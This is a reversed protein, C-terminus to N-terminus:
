RKYYELKFENEPTEPNPDRKKWFNVIFKGRDLETPLNIFLNKEADTIIFVVVEELWQKSWMSLPDKNKKESRSTEQSLGFSFFISLVM